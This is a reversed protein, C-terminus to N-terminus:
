KWPPAQSVMEDFITEAKESFVRGEEALILAIKKSAEQVPGFSALLMVNIKDFYGSDARKPDKRLAGAEKLLGSVLDKIFKPAVDKIVKIGARPFKTTAKAVTKDIAEKLKRAEPLEIEKRKHLRLYRDLLLGLGFSKAAEEGSSLFDFKEKIYEWPSTFHHVLAKVVGKRHTLEGWALYTLADDEIRAKRNLSIRRVMAGNVIGIAYDDIVPIPIFRDCAVSFFVYPALGSHDSGPKKRM